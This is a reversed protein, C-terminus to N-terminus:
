RFLHLCDNIDQKPERLRIGLSIEHAGATESNLDSLTVDFSYGIKFLGKQIGVLFIVADTNSKAYRYWAGGYIMGFGAYAGANLQGFDAQRIWLLNPSIFSRKISNNNKFLPIEGGVHLSYRLPLGENLNDKIGLFTENPTNLHKISFGGYIYKSYALVGASIDLYTNTLDDPRVEASPYPNGNPSTAGNEPDIQDLFVLKDWDLRAQVVSADAGFKVFMEETVKLRYSYIGSLKITKMVGDGSNDALLMVGVGSNLYDLYQDYSAAYTQYANPIEPWQNRYNLHFSPAYGNGALAPNIQLPAAYYQSFIPDQGFTKSTLLLCLAISLTHLIQRTM